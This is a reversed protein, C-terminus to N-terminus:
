LARRVRLLALGLAATGLLLLSGPEPVPTLFGRIEGGPFANTHINLYARDAALGAALTAEASAATGGNAAVFPANYTSLLTLDFTHDYSGSTVGIPFGTFFPTQTAVGANGTGASATCCHIHAATTNASLGSFSVEVRMTNLVLDLIVAASGIGPSGTPPNENAGSLNTVYVIPDALAPLSAALAAPIILKAIKMFEEWPLVGYELRELVLAITRGFNQTKCLANFDYLKIM